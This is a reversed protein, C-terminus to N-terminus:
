MDVDKTADQRQHGEVMVEMEVGGVGRGWEGHGMGCGSRGEGDEM